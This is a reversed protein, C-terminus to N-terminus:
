TMETPRTAPVPTRTKAPTATIVTEVLKVMAIWAVRPGVPVMVAIRAKVVVVAAVPPEVVVMLGSEAVSVWPVAPERYVGLVPLIVYRAPSPRMVAVSTQIKSATATTAKKVLKVAAICADMPGRSGMAAIMPSVGAVVPPGAVGM